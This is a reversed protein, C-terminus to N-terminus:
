GESAKGGKLGELLAEVSVLISSRLTAEPLPAFMDSHLGPRRGEPYSEALAGVVFMVGPCGLEWHFEAFDEGGMTPPLETLPGGSVEALRQAIRRSWVPDNYGARTYEDRHIVEPKSPAGHAEAVAVAVREIETLLKQRVDQEYSRVTLQLVAKPPIINHKTGAAFKGVTVVARTGPPLRRSVITQLSLVIESGIVIPDIALSPYAGHGGLGHVIIDVSDVNASVYGPTLVVKGTPLGSDHMGLALDPQGHKELFAKFKPDKLMARAGQGVEEAPQGVFIIKGKWASRNQSLIRLAGLATSMHVDHGCAHMVGPNKSSYALGTKEVIPLGDMDARYLVVPGPGGGELAALLGYGGVGEVVELKLKRLEEALRKATNKEQNSLEPYSHFWRYLEVTEPLIKEVEQATNLTQGWVPCLLALPCLLAFLFFPLFRKM